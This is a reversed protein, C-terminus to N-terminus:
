ISTVERLLNARRRMAEALHSNLFGSSPDAALAQWAERIADDIMALNREIVVVTEPDLEGRRAEYESELASMAPEWAAALVVPLGSAPGATAAVPAGTPVPAGLAAWVAGGSALALALSAAMLQPVTLIIRRRGAVSVVGTRVGAGAGRPRLRARVGPWLDRGPAVEPLEGAATVVTALEDLLAACEPCDRLHAEVEARAPPTLDGDLYESLREAEHARGHM